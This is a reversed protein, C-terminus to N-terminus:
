DYLAYRGYPHNFGFLYEDILRNAVFDCKKLNVELSQKQNQKYVALEEAPFISETFLETVVPLLQPLYKSLSHLRIVATEHQSSRNLYLRRMFNSSSM